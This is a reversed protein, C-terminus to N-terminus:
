RKAACCPKDAKVGDFGRFRKVRPENTAPAGSQAVDARQKRARAIHGLANFIHDLATEPQEDEFDDYDNRM